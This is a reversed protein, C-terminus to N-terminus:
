TASPGNPLTPPRLVDRLARVRLEMRPLQRAFVEAIGFYGSRSAHDVISRIQEIEQEWSELLQVLCSRLTPGAADALGLADWDHNARCHFSLGGENPVPALSRGCLPCLM